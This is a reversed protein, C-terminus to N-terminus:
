PSWETLTKLHEVHCSTQWNRPCSRVGHVTLNWGCQRCSSADPERSWVTRSQCTSEPQQMANCDKEYTTEHTEKWELPCTRATVAPLRMERHCQCASRSRRRCARLLCPTPTAPLLLLPSALWSCLATPASTSLRSASCLSTARPRVSTAISRVPSCGCRQTAKLLDDDLSISKTASVLASAGGMSGACRLASGCEAGGKVTWSHIHRKGASTDASTGLAHVTLLACSRTARETM